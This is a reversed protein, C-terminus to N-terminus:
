KGDTKDKEASKEALQKELEQIRRGAISLAVEKEGVIALIDSLSAQM